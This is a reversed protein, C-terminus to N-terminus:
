CQVAVGLIQRAEDPSAVAGGMQDILAVVRTVLEANTHAAKGPAYWVRDEFGVRVASAGMGIATALLSLDGMGDHVVSWRVNPPLMSTIFFISRPDAPLAWHAGLPLNAYYPTKLVGEAMLQEAAALMGAEFIELEPVVRGAHMRKAWDRIDPMRNIYVEDGFNVSGMNLSAVEVRPDNLAVCRAELSLTSLGGTAGQIVIDSSARILDLTRGFATLDGTPTGAEDRVHLHVMAADVIAWAEEKETPIGFNMTGLVLPPVQLGFRGLRRYEM